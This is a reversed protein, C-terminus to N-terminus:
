VKIAAQLIDINKSKLYDYTDKNYVHSLEDMVIPLQKLLDTYSLEQLLLIEEAFSDKDVSSCGTYDSLRAAIVPLTERVRTYLKPYKRLIKEVVELDTRVASFLAVYSSFLPAIQALLDYNERLYALSWLRKTAKLYNGKTMFKNIDILLTKYYDEVPESLVESKGEPDLRVVHIFNTIEVYRGEILYWIDLKVISHSILADYLYIKRNGVVEKYGKIIEELSWHLLKLTRFSQDLLLLNEPTIEPTALKKLKEARGQRLLGQNNLNDIADNVIKASYDLVEGNYIEGVYISFRDDFGARFDGFIVQKEPELNMTGAIRRAITQIKAELTLRVENITCCKQYDEFIDIDSPYKFSKFTYSGFPMVNEELTILDIAYREAPDIDEESKRQQVEGTTASITFLNEKCNPPRSSSIKSISPRVGYSRLLEDITKFRRNQM